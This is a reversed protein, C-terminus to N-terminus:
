FLRQAKKRWDSMSHRLIAHDWFRKFEERHTKFLTFNVISVMPLIITKKTIATAGFSDKPNAKWAKRDVLIKFDMEM